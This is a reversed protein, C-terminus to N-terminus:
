MIHVVGEDSHAATTDTNIMEVSEAIHSFVTFSNLPNLSHNGSAVEAVYTMMAPEELSTPCTPNCPLDGCNDILKPVDQGVYWEGVSQMFSVGNVKATTYPIDHIFCEPIFMGTTQRATVQKLTNLMFAGFKAIYAKDTKTSGDQEFLQNTDFISNAVFLPTKITEFSYQGLYCNSPEFWHNRTCAPPLYGDYLVRAGIMRIGFRPLYWKDTPADLFWGDQPAAKVNAYHLEDAVFDANLFAGIGGASNGTLLVDTAHDLGFDAKLRDLLAKLKLHGAFYVDYIPMKHKRQGSYVDGSCYPLFVHNFDKFYPNVSEDASYINEGNKTQALVTSTGLDTKARKQCDAPTFCAGGGNLFIVWSNSHAGVGPRHYFGPASGDLCRAGTNASATDNLLHLQLPGRANNEDTLTIDASALPAMLSLVVASLLTAYIAFAHASTSTM